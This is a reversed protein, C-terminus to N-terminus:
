DHNCKMLKVSEDNLMTLQYGGHFTGFSVVIDFVFANIVSLRLRDTNGHNIINIVVGDTKYEPYLSRIGWNLIM